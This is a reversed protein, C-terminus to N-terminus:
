RKGVKHAPNGAWIEHKRVVSEKTVVSGAGIQAGEEIVVGPLIISGVGINAGDHIVVPMRVLEGFSIPQNVDRQQHECTLIICDNGIGVGKGIECGGEGNIQTFPGIWAMDGITIHGRLYVHPGIYCNEGIHILKEGNIKVGYIMVTREIFTGKGTTASETSKYIINNGVNNGLRWRERELPTYGRFNSFDM